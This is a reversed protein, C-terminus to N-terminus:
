WFILDELERMDAAPRNPGFRTQRIKGLEGGVCANIHRRSNMCGPGGHGKGCTRIHDCDWTANFTHKEYMNTCPPFEKIFM